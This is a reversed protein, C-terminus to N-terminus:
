ECGFWKLMMLLKWLRVHFIIEMFPSDQGNSILALNSPPTKTNQLAKGRPIMWGVLRGERLKCAIRCNCCWRFIQFNAYHLFSVIFLWDEANLGRNKANGRAFACSVNRKFYKSAVLWVVFSAAVLLVVPLRMIAYIKKLFGVFGLCM